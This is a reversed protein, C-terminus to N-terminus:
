VAALDAPAPEQVGEAYTSAVFDRSRVLAFALLAGVFAIAAAILLITTLASTFGLRYSHSLAAQASPALHRALQSVEGSVLAGSLQSHSASGLVKHGAASSALAAETKRTVGHQFVAGLGAIGTAIGVQRFTSNIGSAM